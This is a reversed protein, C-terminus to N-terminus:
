QSALTLFHDLGWDKKRGTEQAMVFPPFYVCNYQSLCATM